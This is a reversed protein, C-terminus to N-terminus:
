RKCRCILINLLVVLFISFRKSKRGELSLEASKDNNSQMPEDDLDMDSAQIVDRGGPKNLDSTFFRQSVTEENTLSDEM